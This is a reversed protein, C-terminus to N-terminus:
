REAVSWKQPSEAKVSITARDENSINNIDTTLMCDEHIVKFKRNYMRLDHTSAKYAAPYRHTKFEITYSPSGTSVAGGRGVTSSVSPHTQKRSEDLIIDHIPLFRGDLVALWGGYETNFVENLPHLSAM